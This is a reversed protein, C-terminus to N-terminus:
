QREGKKPKNALCFHPSFHERFKKSLTKKDLLGLREAEQKQLFGKCAGGFYM